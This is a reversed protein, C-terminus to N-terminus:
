LQDCIGKVEKHSTAKQQYTKKVVNPIFHFLQDKLQAQPNGLVKKSVCITHTLIFDYFVSLRTKM